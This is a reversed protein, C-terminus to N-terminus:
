FNEVMNKIPCVDAYSGKVDIFTGDNLIVRVITDKDGTPYPGTFEKISDVPITRKGISKKTIINYQDLEIFKAM